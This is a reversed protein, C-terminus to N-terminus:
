QQISDLHSHQVLREVEQVFTDVNDVTGGLEFQLILPVDYASAITPGAKAFCDGWNKNGSSAVGLLNNSNHLLFKSTSEPVQGFGITYTVLCFPEDVILSDTIRITDYIGDLKRAFREVNGTLSDYVIKM